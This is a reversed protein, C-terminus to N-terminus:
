NQNQPLLKVRTRHEHATILPDYATRPIFVLDSAYLALAKVATSDRWHIFNVNEDYICGM